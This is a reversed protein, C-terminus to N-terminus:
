GSTLTREYDTPRASPDIREDRRIARSDVAQM